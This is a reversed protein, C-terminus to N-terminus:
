RRCGVDFDPVLSDRLAPDMKSLKERMSKEVIERATKQEKSGKYFNRFRANLAHDVEQRYKRIHDPDKRFLEKQEETYRTARGDPAIQGVFQPAIWTPSRIFSVLKKVVISLM